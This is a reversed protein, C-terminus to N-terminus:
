PVRALLPEGPLDDHGCGLLELVTAAVDVVHPAEREQLRGSGPVAVAWADGTHGGSRGTGSGGGPREVTGFRPSHVGSLDTSPTPGWLVVLDPLLDHRRGPAVETTRVVDTVSPAGDPDAFDLLGDRIEDVLADADAADVIGDRERGRLNLRVHGHHDGALPFARTTSWDVGRLDLRAALEIALRDPIAAAIGGRVRAPVRSRVHWLFGGDRGTDGNRRGGSLVADLMGPLLDSRGTNEEMGLASVVVLDSGPPLADVIGALATDLAEYIEDVATDLGEARALKREEPGLQSLNWLWHGALHASCLGIWALDPRERALLDRAGETARRAATLLNTRYARLQALSPRGFVEEGSPPRGHRSALDRRAATPLSREPLAIRNSFQWGGVFAGSVREPPRGEYLDLLVCRAGAATAREWTAPPAPFREAWRVRQESADWQFAYYLGHDGAHLGTYLTHFSAGAFHEAPTDLRWQHGRRRLDALAPMRGEELLRELLVPSLADLQVVALV